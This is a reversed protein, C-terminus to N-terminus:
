LPVAGKFTIKENNLFSRLNFMKFDSNAIGGKPDILVYRPIDVIGFLDRIKIMDPTDLRVCHADKLHKEVYADYDGQASEDAGTIFLFTFRDNDRNLDRFEKMKEINLRCPGCTTAWFDMIIWKGSYPKILRRLIAGGPTPPIEFTTANITEVYLDELRKQLYPSKITHDYLRTLQDRYLDAFWKAQKRVGDGKQSAITIQWLLPVDESAVLEMLAKTREYGGNEDAIINYSLGQPIFFALRNILPGADSIALITTDAQLLQPMFDMYFEKTLPEKFLSSDPYASQNERRSEIYELLKDAEAAQVKLNLYKRMYPDANIEDAYKNLELRRASTADTIIRKAEEPTKTDALQSARIYKMAPANHLMRNMAALSGGFQVNELKDKLGKKRDIDLMDEWDLLLDIDNDPEIYLSLSAEHPLRISGTQPSTIFFNQDFNGCSDLSIMKTMYNGTPIDWLYIQFSDFGLRPDYGKLKGHVRVEGEKFFYPTPKRPTETFLVEEPMGTSSDSNKGSLSIDFTHFITEPSFDLTKTTKPLPPYTLTFTIEGSEPMVVKEGLTVGEGSIPHFKEGTETDLLYDKESVNFWYGPHFIARFKVKTEKKGLDLEEITLVSSIRSKFSPNVIKKATGASVSLLMLMAAALIIFTKKDM